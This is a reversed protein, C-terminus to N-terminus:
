SNDKLDDLRRQVRAAARRSRVHLGVGAILLLVSSAVVRPARAPQALARAIGLVLVGPVFPLLYWLWASRLRDRKRELEGRLFDLSSQTGLDAPLSATVGQARLWYSVFLAAVIILGAGIRAAASPESWLTWGFAFVVVVAAVYERLNRRAIRRELGRAEERVQELSMAPAGRSQSQWLTQARDQPSDTM